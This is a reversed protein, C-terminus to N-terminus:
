YFLNDTATIHRLFMKAEREAETWTLVVLSSPQLKYEQPRFLLPPRTSSVLTVVQGGKSLCAQRSAPTRGCGLSGEM